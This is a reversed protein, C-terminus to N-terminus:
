IEGKEPNEKAEEAEAKAKEKAEEEEKAEKVKREEEKAKREAEAAEQKAKKAAKEAESRAAFAEAAVKAPAHDTSILINDFLAGDQMTWLEIGIGGIPAMAHPSEDTFFHPNDIKQPAWVGRRM